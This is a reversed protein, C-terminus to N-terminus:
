DARGFLANVSYCTGPERYFSADGWKAEVISAAIKAQLKFQTIASADLGSMKTAGTASKWNYVTNTAVDLIRFDYWGPYLRLTGSRLGLLAADSRLLITDGTGANVSQARWQAIEKTLSLLPVTLFYLKDVDARAQAECDAMASTLGSFNETAKDEIREGALKIGPMVPDQPSGGNIIVAAAVFAASAGIIWGGVLLRNM